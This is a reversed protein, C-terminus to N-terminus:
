AVRDARRCVKPEVDYCLGLAGVIEPDIEQRLTM